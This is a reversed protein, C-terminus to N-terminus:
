KADKSGGGGGGSPSADGDPSGPSKPDAGEEDDDEGEDDDDFDEEEFTNLPVSYIMVVPKNPDKHIVFKGDPQARITRVLTQLIGWINLPNLGIQDALVRPNYFHTGLVVHSDTSTAKRRSVYGLKMTDAGALLTQATWKWLKCANNKLESAFVAGHQLDLKHRWDSGSAHTYENLAYTTMLADTQDRQRRLGHLETRAVLTIEDDVVWKRYRYATSAPNPKEGEEEDEEDDSDDVFPNKRPFHKRNGEGKSLVQQSFNQNIRTAEVSLRQPRNIVVKDEPNPADYATENVTLFDIESDARKDFIVTNGAKKVVVDWPYVSRQASMLHALIADTGIVNGIGVEACHQLVDDDQTTVYFFGRDTLQLGRAHKCDVKEYEEDYYDLYGMWGDELDVGKPARDSYVEKAQGNAGMVVNGQNDTMKARLKMKEFSKLDFQGVVKWTYADVTISAKRQTTDNHRQDHRRLGRNRMRERRRDFRSVAQTRLNKKIDGGKNAMLNVGRNNFRRGRGIFRRGGGKQKAGKVNDVMSFGKEEQADHKFVLNENEENNKQKSMKHWTRTFDAVNPRLYENKDFHTFISELGAFETPYMDELPGWSEENLTVAPLAFSPPASPETKTEM